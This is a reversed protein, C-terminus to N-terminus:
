REVFRWEGIIILDLINDGCSTGFYITFRNRFIMEWGGRYSRSM